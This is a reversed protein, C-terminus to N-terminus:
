AARARRYALSCCALYVLASVVYAYAAGTAGHLPVWFICLSVHAVLAISIGLLMRGTRRYVELPKHVLLAAQWLFAAFTLPWVTALMEPSVADHGLVLPLAWSAALAIVACVPLFALAQMGLATLLTRRWSREDGSNALQMIRPHAALVIPAFILSLGRIIVDYVASYSGTASYGATGSIVVRDVIPFLMSLGLWGSLPWGYRVDSQVHAWTGPPGREATRSLRTSALPMALLYAAATALIAATSAHLMWAVAAPFVLMLVGRVAEATMVNVPRLTAQLRALWAFYIVLAIALTASLISAGLDSGDAPTAWALGREALIMGLAILLACVALHRPDELVRPSTPSTLAARRLIAQNLWGGALAAIGAGVSFVLAYRGYQETGLLRLLLVVSALGALAPVVRGALYIASDKSLLALL